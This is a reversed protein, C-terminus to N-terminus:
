GSFDGFRSPFPAEHGGHEDVDDSESRQRFLAVGFLHPRHEGPVEIPRPLDDLTETTHDVLVDTVGDHRHPAGVHRVLVVGLTRHACGELQDIGDTILEQGILWNWTIARNQQDIVYQKLRGEQQLAQFMKPRHEKLHDHIKWGLANIGTM